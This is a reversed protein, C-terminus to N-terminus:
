DSILLPITTLGDQEYQKMLEQFSLWEEDTELKIDGITGPINRNPYIAFDGHKVGGIYLSIPSIQYFHGELEVSQFRVPHPRVSYYDLDVNKNSPIPEDSLNQVKEGNGTLANWEGEILSKETDIALLKGRGRTRYHYVFVLIKPYTKYFTKVETVLESVNETPHSNISLLISNPKLFVYLILVMLVWILGENLHNKIVNLIWKLIIIDLSKKKM